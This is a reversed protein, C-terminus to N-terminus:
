IAISAAVRDPHLYPYPARGRAVLEANRGDIARGIESLHAQFRAHIEPYRAKMADVKSLSEEAPLTLLYAFSIQFHSIMENPLAARLYAEDIEATGDPFARFLSDPRNPVYGLYDYQPYNVASHGASVQYVLTTIAQRLADRTEFRAPFSTVAGRDPARCELTWASIAPDAAVAADNPYSAEIVEGVYREIARWLALGDDRFLYGELGDTRAEDFGRAELRSPLGFKGFDFRKWAGLFMQLAQATGTSFTRDTFPAVDSVLTQRALFNIGITDRFHPKLLQGLVHDSSFANHTAVAFPEMALHAYGLHEIWQHHQNDACAVHMKALRWQNPPTSERTLIRNGSAERTLRIALIDLGPSGAAEDKVVLMTPAYVFMDRYRALPALDVYDCIFLSKHEILDGLTRNKARLERMEGPVEDISRVRRIVHPNMGQVLQRALERDEAAHDAVWPRVVDGAFYAEFPDRAGEIRSAFQAEAYAYEAGRQVMRGLKKPSLLEDAPLGEAMRPLDELPVDPLQPSRGYRAYVYHDQHGLAVQQAVALANAGLKEVVDLLHEAAHMRTAVDDFGLQDGEALGLELTFELQGQGSGSLPLSFAKPKKVTLEHIDIAISGLLSDRGLGADWVGLELRGALNRVDLLLEEQFQPHTTALRMKSRAPPGGDLQAIVYPDPPLFGTKLLDKASVLKIRLTGLSPHFHADLSKIANAYVERQVDCIRGKFLGGAKVQSTWRVVTDNGHASMTVSTRISELTPVSPEISVLEYVEIHKDDDRQVLRERYTRGTKTHFVRVAGVEDKAPADLKVWEYIPWWTMIEPGFPRFLAWTKDIPARVTAVVDVDFDTREADSM